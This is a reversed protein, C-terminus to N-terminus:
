ADILQSLTYCGLSDARSHDVHTWVKEAATDIDANAIQHPGSMPGPKTPDAYWSSDSAHSIIRSFREARDLFTSTLGRMRRTSGSEVRGSTINASAQCGMSVEYCARSGTRCDSTASRYGWSIPRPSEGETWGSFSSMNNASRPPRISIGGDAM